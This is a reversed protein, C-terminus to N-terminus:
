PLAPVVPPTNTWGAEAMTAVYTKPWLVEGGHTLKQERALLTMRGTDVVLRLRVVTAGAGKGDTRSTVVATGPRGLGDEAAGDARVGPLTLLARYAAARVEQPAPLSHLLEPLVGALWAGVSEDPVRSTRAAETLWAKLRDPDAPLRQVEDYTLRQGGLLYEDRAPQERLTGRAPRASLKVSRGDTTERWTGPSGDRQWAKRDAATRPAVGLDRVGYWWRGGPAHWEEFVRRQVLLYTDSKPGFTWPLVTETLERTHWYAGQPPTAAAPGSLAAAGVALAAALAAPATARKRIRTSPNLNM